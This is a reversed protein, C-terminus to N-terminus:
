NSMVLQSINNYTMVLSTYANFLLKSNLENIKGNINPQREDEDESFHYGKM